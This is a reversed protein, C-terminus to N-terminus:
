GDRVLELYALRRAPPLALIQQESWGYCRALEDVERLLRWAASELRRWVFEGIDLPSDWRQQCAPCTMDFSIEALPDAAAIRRALAERLDATVPAPDVLCRSALLLAGEAPDTCEAAAALDEGAPLRWHITQGGVELPAAEAAPSAVGTLEAVPVDLAVETGCGPCTALGRLRDAFNDAYLDLLAAQRTGITDPVPRGFARLLAVNRADWHPPEGSQWATCVSEWAALLASAAPGAM